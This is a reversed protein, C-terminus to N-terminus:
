RQFLQLKLVNIGWDTKDLEFYDLSKPDNLDVRSLDYKSSKLGNSM